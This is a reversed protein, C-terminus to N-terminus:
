YLIRPILLNSLLFGKDTLSIGEKSIDVLGPSVYKQARKYFEAPIPEGFKKKYEAEKLGECLRLRLMSYEEKGGGKGDLVTCPKEIFKKIDRQYFFREGNIFSHASPGFGLYEDANWYKLNHKSEMGNKCFNSIEYHKYGKLALFSSAFLYLRAESEENPLSLFNKIKFFKTNKEIKLLYVSIHSVSNETCFELTNLLDQEKQNPTAIMVDLSINKFGANKVKFLAKNVDFPTHARGLNLLETENISQMGISIRNVGTKKLELFDLFKHCSPNLEITIEPNLVNFFKYVTNLIRNINKIGILSPTGGGFYITDVNKKLMKAKTEIEKCLAETFNEIINEGNEYKDWPKVSYFDCYPCKKTCFPIHIYIGIPKM